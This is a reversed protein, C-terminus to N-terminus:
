PMANTDFIERWTPQNTYLQVHKDDISESNVEIQNFYTNHQLNHLM